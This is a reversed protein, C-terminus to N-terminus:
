PTLNNFFQRISRKIPDGVGNVRLGLGGDALLGIFDAQFVSFFLNFIGWYICFGSM